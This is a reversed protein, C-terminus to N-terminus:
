ALDGEPTGSGPARRAEAPLCFPYRRRRMPAEHQRAIRFRHRRDVTPLHDHRHEAIRVRMRLREVCHKARRLPEAHVLQPREPVHDSATRVGLM